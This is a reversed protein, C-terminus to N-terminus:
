FDSIPGVRLTSFTKSFIFADLGFITQKGLGFLGVPVTKENFSKSLIILKVATLNIIKLLDKLSFVTGTPSNPNPLCVM